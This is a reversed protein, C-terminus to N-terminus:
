EQQIAPQQRSPPANGTLAPHARPSVSKRTTPRAHTAKKKELLLRCVLHRLSQLESTHEESRRGTPRAPAPQEDDLFDNGRAVLWERALEGIDRHQEHRAPPLASGVLIPQEQGLGPEGHKPHDWGLTGRADDLRDRGLWCGTTCATFRGM